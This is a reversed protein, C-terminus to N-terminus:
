SGDWLSELKLIMKHVNPVHSGKSMAAPNAPVVLIAHGDLASDQHSVHRSRRGRGDHLVRAHEHNRITHPAVSAARGRAASDEIM